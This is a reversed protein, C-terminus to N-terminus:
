QKTLVEKIKKVNTMSIIDEFDLDLQLKEQLEFILQVQKLSDWGAVNNIAYSDDPDIGIVQRFINNFQELNNM